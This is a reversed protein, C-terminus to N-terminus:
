LGIVNTSELAKILRRNVVHEFTLVNALVILVFNMKM